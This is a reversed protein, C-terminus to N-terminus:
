VAGIARLAGEASFIVLYQEGFIARLKEQKPKLAGKRLGDTRRRKTLDPDKVEILYARDRFRVVLDVDFLELVDAGVKRLADAVDKHNSDRKAAFRMLLGSIGHGHGLHV